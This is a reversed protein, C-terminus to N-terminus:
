LPQVGMCNLTGNTNKICYRTEVNVPCTVTDQVRKVAYGTILACVVVSAFFWKVGAV